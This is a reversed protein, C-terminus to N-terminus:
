SLHFVGVDQLKTRSTTIVEDRKMELLEILNGRNRILNELDDYDICALVVSDRAYRLTALDRITITPKKIAAIIGLKIIKKESDNINDIIGALKLFYTNNPKKKENKCEIIVREGLFPLYNAFIVRVYCDIQNTSTKIPTCKFCTAKSFLQCIFDELSGGQATTNRQKTKIKRFAIDLEM